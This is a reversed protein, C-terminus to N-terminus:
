CGENKVLRCRCNIGVWGKKFGFGVDIKDFEDEHIKKGIWWESSVLGGESKKTNVWDV